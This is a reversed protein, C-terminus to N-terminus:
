GAEGVRQPVPHKFQKNILGNYVDEIARVMAEVTFATSTATRAAQGLRTRLAEDQALRIVPAALADLDRPPVLFGNVGEQIVEPIGGVRTSVVPTGTALAQVITRPLVDFWAPHVFVDMLAMMEPVDERLGTLVFRDELGQEAILSRVLDMNEGDGVMLFHTDPAAAIVQPAIQVLAEPKKKNEFIM